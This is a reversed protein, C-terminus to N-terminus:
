ELADIISDLLVIKDEVKEIIQGKYEIVQALKDKITEFDKVEKASKIETWLEKKAERLTKLEERIAKLEERYPQITDLIELSGSEKIDKITEKIDTRKEVVQLHLDKHETRLGQLEARMEKLEAKLEPNVADGAPEEAFVGISLACMFVLVMTLVLMKKM